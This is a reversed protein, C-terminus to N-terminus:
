NSPGAIGEGRYNAQMVQMVRNIDTGDLKINVGDVEIMELKPTSLDGESDVVAAFMQMKPCRVVKVKELSPWKFTLTYDTCFGELNPLCNLSLVRLQSFVLNECNDDVEQRKALVVELQDCDELYLKKLKGLRQAASAPLIAKLKNCCNIYLFELNGLDLLETSCKYIHKLGGLDKLELEWLRPPVDEKKEFIYELANCCEVQLVELEKLQLQPNLSGFVNSLKPCGNFRLKKLKMMSLSMEYPLEGKCLGKLAKLYSLSLTELDVLCTGQQQQTTPLIEWEEANILYELKSCYSIYLSRLVALSDRLDRESFLLPFINRLGKLKSLSLDNTRPLLPKICGYRTVWMTPDKILGKLNLCNKRSLFRAIKEMRDPFVRGYGISIKFVELDPFSFGEPIHEFNKIVITFATLRPLSKLETIDFSEFNGFRELQSSWMYLEQLQPLSSIVNHPFISDMHPLHYCHELDLLKLSTLKRMASVPETFISGRFSLIELLKLEELSSTDGVRGYQLILTRLNTLHGLSIHPISEEFPFPLNSRQDVVKLTKMGKLVGGLMALQSNCNERLLLTQLNPCDWSAPYEPIQSQMISIAAYRKLNEINPWEELKEGDAKAFYVDSTISKAVDRVVDHMKVYGDWKSTLLLCSEKLNNVISRARNRAEQIRVDEFIGLGIGYRVLDEVPIDFDEPFLCCFLFMFKAEKDRLYDYSLRLCKYVEDDVGEINAPRAQKLELAAEKWQELDKGRMARGVTLIAIPLGRCEKCIEKAVSNMTPSEIVDGVNRKLLSWSEQESLVHFRVIKISEIRSAMANCVQRRRTTIMIKCGIHDNGFPIGISALDLKAWIDDLIILTKNEKKLRTHLMRARGQESSTQKFDLGLMEAIQEQIRRVSITQSVVAMVVADFLKVQEVEKAIEKVLTTKGIGGMGQIGIFSTGEDKLAEM